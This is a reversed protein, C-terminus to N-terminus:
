RIPRADDRVIVVNAPADIGLKVSGSRAEVITIEVGDGIMIKEGDKRTLILM